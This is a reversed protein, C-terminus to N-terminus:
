VHTQMDPVRYLVGRLKPTPQSNMERRTAVSSVTSVTYPVLFTLFIQFIRGATLQGALIAPGHNIAMLITGVILSTLRARRVTAPHM